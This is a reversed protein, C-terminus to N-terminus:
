LRPLRLDKHAPISDILTFDTRTAAVTEGRQVIEETRITGLRGDAAKLYTVKLPDLGMIRATTADVAALDTGMVIVGAPKPTGMIPGDGEMGIIGDVIALHPKVTQNIDLISPEIGVWHFVNKPWGYAIGPMLGFLNKMSLTVGVWHHTKMKPMSVVWDVQDVTAPLALTALGNRGGANPKVVLDDNNLDIFPTKHEVLAGAMGAEELVRTTDRCHGPGEGIIVAAGFKRFAEVAAFIVEPQTCIHTTGRMTEVFNPKLLVKKGRIERPGIGLGRLGAEIVSVLDASYSSAKAIFVRSKRRRQRLDEHVLAAATGIVGAALADALLRRRSIKGLWRKESPSQTM